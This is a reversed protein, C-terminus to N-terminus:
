YFKATVKKVKKTAAVDKKIEKYNVAKKNNKSSISKKKM